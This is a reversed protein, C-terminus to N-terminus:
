QGHIIEVFTLSFINTINSLRLMKFSDSDTEEIHSVRALAFDSNSSLSILDGEVIDLERPATYVFNGGGVGKLIVPTGNKMIRGETLTGPSTYLTVKANKGAIETVTGLAVSGNTVLNGVQVTNESSLALVLLDYPSQSPHMTVPVAVGTLKSRVGLFKRLEENQSALLDFSILKEELDQNQKHLRANEDVLDAKSHFFQSNSFVSAVADISKSIPKAIALTVQTFFGPFVYYIGFVLLAIVTTLIISKKGGRNQRTQLQYSM